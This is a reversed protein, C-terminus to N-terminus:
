QSHPLGFAFDFGGQVGDEILVSPQGLARLRLESENLFLYRGGDVWTIKDAFNVDSLQVTAGQLLGLWTRRTDDMWYVVGASNPTWGVIGFQDAAHWFYTQDTTSADIVHLELNAGALKTYLVKSGDPSIYPRSQFAPAAVFQALQAAPGGIAPVFMFRTPASPNAVADPPPIVTKFGSGDLMWVVQPTYSTENYMMVLPYTFVTNLGSGDINVVNIKDNRALAIKTGDPSFTFEAGGENTKLLSQVVPADANVKALDGEPIAFPSSVVITNFYIDHTFPAFEFFHLKVQGPDVEPLTALASSAALVRENSGDPNIAWLEGNRRFAVVAGDNSFKPDSDQGSSTLQRPTDGEWIHINGKSAYVVQLVIAPAATRTVSPTQQAAPPLDTPTIEGGADGGGGTVPPEPPNCVEPPVGQFACVIDRMSGGSSPTQSSCALIVLGLAAVTWLFRRKM